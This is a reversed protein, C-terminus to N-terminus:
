CDGNATQNCSYEVEGLGAYKKARFDGEGNSSAEETELKQPRCLWRYEPYGAASGSRKYLRRRKNRPSDCVAIGARCANTHPNNKPM